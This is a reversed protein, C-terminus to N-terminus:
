KDPAVGAVADRHLKQFDSKVDLLIGLRGAFRHREADSLGPQVSPGLESLVNQDLLGLFGAVLPHDPPTVALTERLARLKAPWNPDTLTLALPLPPTPDKFKWNM